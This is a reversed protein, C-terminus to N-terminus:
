WDGRAYGDADAQREAWISALRKMFKIAKPLSRGEQELIREHEATDWCEVITDAGKEYNANAWDKMAQIKAAKDMQQEKSDM